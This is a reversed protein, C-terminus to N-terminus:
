RRTVRGSAGIAVVFASQYPASTTHVIQVQDPEALEQDGGANREEEGRPSGRSGVAPTM